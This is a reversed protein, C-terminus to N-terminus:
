ILATMSMLFDLKGKTVDYVQDVAAAISNKSTVDLEVCVCRAGHKGPRAKFSEILALDIATAIVNVGRELFAIVHGEGMGGPSVGTVLAWKGSM